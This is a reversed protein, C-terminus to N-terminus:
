TNLLEGLSIDPIRSSDYYELVESVISDTYKHGLNTGDLCAEVENTLATEVLDNDWVVLNEAQKTDWVKRSAPWQLLHNDHVPYGDFTALEDYVEIDRGSM